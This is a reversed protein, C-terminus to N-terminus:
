DEMQINSRKRGSIQLLKRNREYKQEVEAKRLFICVCVCVYIHIYSGASYCASPHMVHNRISFYAHFLIKISLLLSLKRFFQTQFTYKFM